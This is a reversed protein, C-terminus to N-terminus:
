FVYYVCLLVFLFVCLVCFVRAVCACCSSAFLCLWACFSFLGFMVFCVCVCFTTSLGDNLVACVFSLVFRLVRSFLVILCGCYSVRVCLLAFVFVGLVCLCRM